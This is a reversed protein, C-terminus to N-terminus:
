HCISEVTVVDAPMVRNEWADRATDGEGIIWVDGRADVAEIRCTPKDSVAAFALWPGVVALSAAIVVAFAAVSQRPFVVTEVCELRNRKAHMEAARHAARVSHFSGPVRFSGAPTTVTAVHRM